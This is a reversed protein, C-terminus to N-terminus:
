KPEFSYRRLSARREEPSQFEDDYVMLTAGAAAAKPPRSNLPLRPADVCEAVCTPTRHVARLSWLRMLPDPHPVRVPAPTAAPAAAAPPASPSAAAAPTNVPIFGDDAQPRPPPAGAAAAPNAYAAFAPPAVALPYSVLSLLTYRQTGNQPAQPPPQNYM